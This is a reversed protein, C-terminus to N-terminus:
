KWTVAGAVIGFLGATLVSGGVVKTGYSCGYAYQNAGCEPRNAYVLVAAGTIAAVGGLIIATQAARNDGGGRRGRYRGGYRQAFTTSGDADSMFPGRWVDARLSDLSAAAIAEDSIAIRPASSPSVAKSSMATGTPAPTTLADAESAFLTGSLPSGLLCVILTSTTVSRFSSSM